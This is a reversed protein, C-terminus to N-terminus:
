QLGNLFRDYNEKIKELPTEKLYKESFTYQYGPGAIYIVPEPFECAGIKKLYDIKEQEIQYKNTMSCPM